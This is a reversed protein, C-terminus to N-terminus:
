ITFLKEVASCSDRSKHPLCFGSPFVYVEEERAWQLSSGSCGHNRGSNTKLDVAIKHSRSILCYMVWSHCKMSM